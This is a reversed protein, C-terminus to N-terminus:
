VSLAKSNIRKAAPQYSKKWATKIKLIKSTGSTYLTYLNRCVPRNKVSETKNLQNRTKIFSHITDPPVLWPFTLICYGMM